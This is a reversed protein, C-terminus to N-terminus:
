QRWRWMRRGISKNDVYIFYLIAIIYIAVYLLSRGSDYTVGFAMAYTFLIVFTITVLTKFLERRPRGRSAVFGAYLGALLSGAVFQGFIPWIWIGSYDGQVAFIATFFCGAVIAVALVLMWKYPIAAVWRWAERLLRKLLSDDDTSV